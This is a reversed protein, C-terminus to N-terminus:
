KRSPAQLAANVADGIALAVLMCAAVFNVVPVVILAVDLGDFTGRKRWHALKVALNLFLPVFYMGLLVYSITM